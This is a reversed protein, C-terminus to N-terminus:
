ADRRRREGSRDDVERRDDGGVFQLPGTVVEFAAAEAERPQLLGRLPGVAEGFRGGTARWYTMRSTSPENMARTSRANGETRRPMSAWLRANWVPSCLSVMSWRRSLRAPKSPQSNM